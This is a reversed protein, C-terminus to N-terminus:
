ASGLKPAIAEAWRRYGAANLHLGDHTCAPDLRGDRLFLAHLDLWELGLEGALAALLQNTAVVKHQVAVGWVSVDIPLLAQV